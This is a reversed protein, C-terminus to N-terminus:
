SWRRWGCGACPRPRTRSRRSSPPRRRAGVPGVDDACARGTRGGLASLLAVGGRAPAGIEDLRATLYARVRERSWGRPEGPGPLAAVVSGAHGGVWAHLDPAPLGVLAELEDAGLALDAATLLETEVETRLRLVVAHDGRLCLVLHRDPARRVLDVLGLLVDVDLADARDVVLAAREGDPVLTRLLERPDAGGAAADYWGVHEGAARADAAWHAAATTKGAGGPAQLVTLPRWRDLRETM